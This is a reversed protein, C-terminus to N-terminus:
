KKMGDVFHQYETSRKLEKIEDTLDVKEDVLDNVQKQLSKIQGTLNRVTGATLKIMEMDNISEDEGIIKM